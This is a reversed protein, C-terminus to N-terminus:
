FTNTSIIDAGAELFKHHIEAVREPQTICLLDNNGRLDTPWDMFRKGRFDSEKLKLSQISTGLAGDLIV